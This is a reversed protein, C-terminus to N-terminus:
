SDREQNPNPNPLPRSCDAKEKPTDQDGAEYRDPGSTFPLDPQRGVVQAQRRRAEAIARKVVAPALGIFLNTCARKRVVYTTGIHFSDLREISDTRLKTTRDLHAQYVELTGPGVTITDRPGDDSPM